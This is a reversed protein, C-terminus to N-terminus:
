AADALGFAAVVAAASVEFVYTVDTGPALKSFGHKPSDPLFRAYAVHLRVGQRDTVEYAHFTDAHRRASAIKIRGDTLSVNLRDKLTTNEHGKVGNCIAVQTVRHHRTSATATM